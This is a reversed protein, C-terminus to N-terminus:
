TLGGRESEPTLPFVGGVEEMERADFHVHIEGNQSGSSIQRTTCVIWRNRTRVKCVQADGRELISRAPSAALSPTVIPGAPSFGTPRM